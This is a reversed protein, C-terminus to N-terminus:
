GQDKSEIHCASHRRLAHGVEERAADPVEVGEGECGDVGSEECMDDDCECVDRWVELYSTM